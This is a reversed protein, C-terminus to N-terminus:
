KTSVKKKADKTAKIQDKLAVYEDESRHLTDLYRTNLLARSASKDPVFIAKKNKNARRKTVLSYAEFSSPRGVGLLREGAIAPTGDRFWLLM